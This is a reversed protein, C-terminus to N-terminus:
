LSKDVGEAILEFFFFSEINSVGLTLFAHYFHVRFSLDRNWDNSARMRKENLFMMLHM